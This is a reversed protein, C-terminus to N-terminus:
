QRVSLRSCACACRVVAVVIYRSIPIVYQSSFASAISQFSGDAGGYGRGQGYSSRRRAQGRGIELSALLLQHTPTWFQCLPFGLWSSGARRPPVASPDAVELLPPRL